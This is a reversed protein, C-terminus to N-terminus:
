RRHWVLDKIEVLTIFLFNIVVVSLGLLLGFIDVWQQKLLIALIVGLVFLRLMSKPVLGKPTKKVILLKVLTRHLLHFNVNALIGGLLLGVTFRWPMWISSAIVLGGLLLWNRWKLDAPIKEFEGQELM